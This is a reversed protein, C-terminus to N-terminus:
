DLSYCVAEPISLDYHYTCYARSYNDDLYMSGSIEDSEHFRYKTRYLLVCHPYTKGNSSTYKEGVTDPTSLAVVYGFDMDSINASQLTCNFGDVITGEFHFANENKKCSTFALTIAALVLILKKM